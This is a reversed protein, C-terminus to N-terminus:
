RGQETPHSLLRHAQLVAQPGDSATADAGVLAVLDPRAAFLPGGVMVGVVPNCSARRVAQIASATSDLWRECSVSFGVVAFWERRVLGALDACSAAPAPNSVAWGARRFFDSVMALGFTHQDGPAAALLARHGNALTGAEDRFAPGAEHLVQLLRLLGITVTTFDARDEEWLEGLWRAAPALLHLYLAELTAGRARLAEVYAYAATADRAAALTAFERVTGADLEPASVSAAALVAAKRASVLRPLVTRELVQVLLATREGAGGLPPPPMEPWEPPVRGVAIGGDLKWRSDGTPETFAAM